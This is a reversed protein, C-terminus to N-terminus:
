TFILSILAVTLKYQMNMVLECNTVRLEENINVLYQSVFSSINHRYILLKVNNFLPVVLHYTIYLIISDRDLAGASVQGVM